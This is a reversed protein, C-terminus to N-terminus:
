RAARCGALKCAFIHHRATDLARVARAIAENRVAERHELTIEVGGGKITPVGDVREGLSSGYFKWHRSSKGPGRDDM